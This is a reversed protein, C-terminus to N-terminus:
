KAGRRRVIPPKGASPVRAPRAAPAPPTPATAETIVDLKELAEGMQGAREARATAVKALEAQVYARLETIQEGQIIATGEIRDVVDRLTTGHDEKFEAAIDLLDPIANVIQDAFSAAHLLPKFVKKWSGVIAAAAGIVTVIAGAIILIPTM